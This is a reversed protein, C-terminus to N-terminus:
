AARAANKTRHKARYATRCKRCDRRGSAPYVYTNEPTFEHGHKCHTIEAAHLGMHVRHTLLELHDPNVCTRTGCRHHLHMGDPLARGALHWAHRHAFRPIRDVAFQGYGGHDKAGVWIWCGNLGVAIKEVFRPPWNSTDVPREPANVSVTHESAKCRNSDALRRQGAGNLRETHFGV